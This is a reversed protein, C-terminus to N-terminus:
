RRGMLEIDYLPVAITGSGYTHVHVYWQGDIGRHPPACTFGQECHIPLGGVAEGYYVRVRQRTKLEPAPEEEFLDQGALLKAVLEGLAAMTIFTYKGAATYWAGDIRVRYLGEDSTKQPWLAADFVELSIKRGDKKGDPSLLVAYTKERKEAM